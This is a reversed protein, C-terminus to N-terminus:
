RGTRVTGAFSYGLRTMRSAGQHKQITSIVVQSRCTADHPLAIGARCSGGVSSSNQQGGSPRARKVADPLHDPSRAQTSARAAWGHPADRGAVFGISQMDEPSAPIARTDRRTRHRRRQFAATCSAIRVISRVSYFRTCFREAVAAGPDLPSARFCAPAPSPFRVRTTLKPLKQEVMSSCGCLWADLRGASPRKARKQCQKAVREIYRCIAKRALGLPTAKFSFLCRTESNGKKTLRQQHTPRFRGKESCGDSPPSGRPWPSSSGGSQQPGLLFVGM